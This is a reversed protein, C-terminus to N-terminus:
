SASPAGVRTRVRVLGPIAMCLNAELGARLTRDIEYAAASGDVRLTLTGGRLTEVTACAQLEAPALRAWADTAAGISRELRRLERAFGAVDKELDAGREPRARWGALRRIHDLDRNL